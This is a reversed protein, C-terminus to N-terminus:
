QLMVRGTVVLGDGRRGRLFYVGPSHGSMDVSERYRLRSRTLIVQGLQNFVTFDALEGTTLDGVLFTALTPSPHVAVNSTAPGHSTSSPQGLSQVAADLWHARDDIWSKLYDIEDSYTAGVYSNPWIYRGLVPWRRFNRDAADGVVSALSDVRTRLREDSFVGARLETWRARVRTRFNNDELLRQWYWPFIDEPCVQNFDFAWGTTFGGACYNANGFGLNFDWVPGMRLKGGESDRDKSMYTSLRYGDVNRTLENLLLFDVFSAVDVFAAFGLDPDRFDEGALADEFAGIWNTIYERQPATIDAPKPYHFLYKTKDGTRDSAAYRSRFSNQEQRGVEGTFKDHKLVYGGTLRDGDNDDPTLRKIDVRNRDRKISETFLYVGRYDDNIVLEVLRVRPAYDMVDGALTYALADRILSKDSYPGRLVWDEEVPFGLIAVQRDSGDAFRTELGYGKKEFGQTSSGRLEIGVFGAYENFTDTVRNVLGAGNDVVGMRVTRKPDDLIEEGDTQIVIIPLTSTFNTQGTLVGTLFVILGVTSFRLIM